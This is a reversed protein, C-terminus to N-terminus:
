KEEKYKKKEKELLQKFKSNSSGHNNASNRKLNNHLKEIRNVRM